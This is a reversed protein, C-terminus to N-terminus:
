RKIRLVEGVFILNVNTIRNERAIEEVTTDFRRAIDYLTDGAKVRYYIFNEDPRNENEDDTIYVTDTFRDRDVPM